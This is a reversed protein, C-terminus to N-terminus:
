QFTLRALTPIAAGTPVNTKPQLYFDDDDSDPTFSDRQMKRPPSHTPHATLNNIQDTLAQLLAANNEQINANISAVQQAVAQHLSDGLTQIMTHTNTEIRLELQQMATEFEAKLQQQMTLTAARMEEIEKKLDKQMTQQARTIEDLDVMTLSETTDTSSSSSTDHHTATDMRPKKSPDLAPFADADLDLVTPPRRKWANVPPTLTTITNPIMNALHKAYTQFRASTAVRNARTVPTDSRMIRAMNDPALSTMNQFVTDIYQIAATLTHKHTVLLYRGESVSATTPEISYFLKQNPNDPSVSTLIADEFTIDSKSGDPNDVTITAKINGVNTIPFSRLNHIHQHHLRIHQYYLDYPMTGNTPTPVFYLESPLQKETDFIDIMMERTKELHTRDVQVELLTTSTKDMGKGYNITNPTLRIELDPAKAKVAAQILANLTDRRHITPSMKCVFGASVATFTSTFGYTCIFYRNRKLWGFFGTNNKLASLTSPTIIRLFFRISRVTKNNNSPSDQFGSVYKNLAAGSPVDTALSIIGGTNNVDIPVITSNTQVKQLEFLLDKLFPKVPFPTSDNAARNVDIRICTNVLPATETDPQLLHKASTFGKDPSVMTANPSGNPRGFPDLTM